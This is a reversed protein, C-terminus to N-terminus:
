QTVCWRGVHWRKLREYTGSAIIGPLRQRLEGVEQVSLGLVDRIHSLTRVLSSGCDTVILEWQNSGPAFEERYQAIYVEPLDAAGYRRIEGTYRNVIVPGNGGLAYRLEGTDLFKKSNYFFVWGFDEEITAHDLIVMELRELAYPHPQNIEALALERAQHYDLM